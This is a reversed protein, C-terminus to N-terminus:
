EIVRNLQVPLREFRATRSFTLLATTLRSAREASQVIQSLPERRPDSEPTQELLLSGFGLVTGLLNNFDHAVGGALRGMSEMKQAHTLRRQLLWPATVDEVTVIRGTVAGLADRVPGAYRRLIRHPEKLEAVEDRMEDSLLRREFEVEHCPGCVLKKFDKPAH